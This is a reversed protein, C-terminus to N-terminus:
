RHIHKIIYKIDGWDGDEELVTLTKHIKKLVPDEHHTCEINIRHSTGYRDGDDDPSYDEYEVKLKREISLRKFTIELEALLYHSYEGESNYDITTNVTLDTIDKLKDQYIEHQNCFKILRKEKKVQELKHQLSKIETSVQTLTRLSM